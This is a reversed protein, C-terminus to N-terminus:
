RSCSGQMWRLNIGIRPSDVATWVYSVAKDNDREHVFMEFVDSWEGVPFLTTKLMFYYKNPDSKPGFRAIGGQNHVKLPRQFNQEAEDSSDTTAIWCTYYNARLLELPSDAMKKDIPLMADTFLNETHWYGKENIVFDGGVRMKRPGASIVCATPDMVGEFQLGVRQWVIECGAPFATMKDATVEDKFDQGESPRYITQVIVGKDEDIKFDFVRARSLKGKEDTEFMRQVVATRDKIEVADFRVHLRPHRDGQELVKGLFGNTEFNVQNYNNYDGPLLAMLAKLDKGLVTGSGVEGDEAAVSSSALLLGAALVKLIRM